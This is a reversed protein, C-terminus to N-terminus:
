PITVEQDGIVKLVTGSNKTYPPLVGLELDLPYLAFNTNYITLSGTNIIKDMTGLITGITLDSADNVIYGFAANQITNFHATGFAVRIQITLNDFDVATRINITCNIFHIISTVGNAVLTDLYFSCHIFTGDFYNQASTSARTVSEKISCGYLNNLFISGTNNLIINLGEKDSITYYDSGSFTVTDGPRVTSSLATWEAATSVEHAGGGGGSVGGSEASEGTNAPLTCSPSDINCDFRAM